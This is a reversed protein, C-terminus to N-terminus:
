RKFRALARVVANELLVSGGKGGPRNNVLISFALREGTAATVYGSYASVNRVTGTKAHVNGRMLPENLRWSLADEGPVVLSEYFEAAYPHNAMAALLQVIAHPTVLNFHSLGSGDAMYISGPDIGAERRLFDDVAAIGAAASGEGGVEAGITKLLQEAYFNQSRKNVVKLIEGLPPSIHVALTTWDAKSAADYGAAAVRTEGDVQIGARQLRERFVTLAFRAPDDVTVVVSAGRGRLAVHGGLVVRNSEPPRQM